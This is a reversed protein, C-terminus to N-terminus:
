KQPIRQLEASAATAESQLPSDDLEGTAALAEASL